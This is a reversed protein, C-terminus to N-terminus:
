QFVYAKQVIAKSSLSIPKSCVTYVSAGPPGTFGEILGMM